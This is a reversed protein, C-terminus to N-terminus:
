RVFRGQPLLVSEQLPDVVGADHCREFKAPIGVPEKEHTSENRPLVEDRM